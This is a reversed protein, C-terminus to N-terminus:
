VRITVTHDYNSLKVDSRMDIWIAPTKITRLIIHRKSLPMPLYNNNMLDTM